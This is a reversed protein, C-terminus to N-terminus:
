IYIMVSFLSNIVLDCYIIYFAIVDLYFSLQWTRYKKNIINPMFLATQVMFSIASLSQPGWKGLNM